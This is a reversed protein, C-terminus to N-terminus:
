KKVIKCIDYSINGEKYGEIDSIYWKKYYDLKPFFTDADAVNKAVRTLYIVDVYDKQLAEKYISGGGIIYIDNGFKSGIEFLAKELSDTYILNNTDSISDCRTIVINNRDSLPRGISDFTKRGMVVTNGYTLRKFNAMDEKLRFLLENDKGIANNESVAVIIYISNRRM